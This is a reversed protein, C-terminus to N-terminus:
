KKLAIKYYENILMDLEQSVKLTKDSSEKLVLENLEHKKKQIKKELKKDEM